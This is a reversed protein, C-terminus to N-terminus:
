ISMFFNMIKLRKIKVKIVGPSVEDNTTYIESDYIM